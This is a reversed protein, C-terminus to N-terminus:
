ESIEFGPIKDGKKLTIIAKKFGKTQVKHSGKFMRVEGKARMINVSIVKVKYLSEIAKAVEPKNAKPHVEFVYKGSETGTLSKESILPKILLNM